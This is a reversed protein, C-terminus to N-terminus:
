KLPIREAFAQSGPARIVPLTRAMAVKFPLNMEASQFRQRLAALVEARTTQARIAAWARMIPGGLRPAASCPCHRWTRALCNGVSYENANAEYFDCDKMLARALYDQVHRNFTQDRSIRHEEVLWELTKRIFQFRGVATSKSGERKLKSQYDLVESITMRTIPKPPASTAGLVIDDYGDPGEIEGILELFPRDNVSRVKVQDAAAQTGMLAALSVFVARLSFACSAFECFRLPLSHIMM